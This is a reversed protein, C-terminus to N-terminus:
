LWVLTEKHYMGDEIGGKLQATKRNIMGQVDLM